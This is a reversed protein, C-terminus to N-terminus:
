RRDKGQRPYFDHALLYSAAKYCLYADFESLGMALLMDRIDATTQGMSIRHAVADITGNTFM